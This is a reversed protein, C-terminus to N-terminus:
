DTILGKRLRAIQNIIQENHTNNDIPECILDLNGKCYPVAEEKPYVGAHTSYSVYGCKNWGYYMGRKRIYCHTIKPDQLYKEIKANYEEVRIRYKVEHRQMEVGKYVVKDYQKARRIPMNLFTMEDESLELKYDCMDIEGSIKQKAQGRTEAFVVFESYLHGEHIKDLNLEYAKHKIELKETM